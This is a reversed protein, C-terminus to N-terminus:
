LVKRNQTRASQFFWSPPELFYWSPPLLWPCSHSCSSHALAVLWRFRLQLRAGGELGRVSGGASRRGKPRGGAAVAQTVEPWTPARFFIESKPAETGTETTTTQPRRTDEGGALFDRYLSGQQRHYLPPKGGKIKAITIRRAKPLTPNRARPGLKMIRRPESCLSSRPPPAQFGPRLAPSLWSNHTQSEEKPRSQWLHNFHPTVQKPTHHLEQHFIDRTYSSVVRTCM